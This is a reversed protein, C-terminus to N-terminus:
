NEWRVRTNAHSEVTAGSAMCEAAADTSAAKLTGTQDACFARKGAQSPVALVQFAPSPASGCGSLTYSYIGSQGSALAPDLAAAPSSAMQGRGSVLDRLSCTYGHEPHATRYSREAAVIRRLTSMATIEDSMGPHQTGSKQLAKLFEPDDLKVAINFGVQQIRWAGRELMMGLTLRPTVGGLPQEEGNKFGHVSLEMDDRDGRLEDRDINVQFKEGTPQIVSLLVSGAPFVQFGKSMAQMQMAPLMLSSASGSKEIAARTAEPLHNLIDGTTLIQVLAQRPTQAGRQAQALLMTGSLILTVVVARRFM